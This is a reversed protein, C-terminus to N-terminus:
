LVKLEEFSLLTHAFHKSTFVYSNEVLTCLLHLPPWELLLSLEGM